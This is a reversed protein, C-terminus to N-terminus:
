GAFAQEFSTIFEPTAEGSYGCYNVMGDAATIVYTSGEQFDIGGILAEMGQTATLEVTDADGGTFWRDVSLTVRDGAVAVATGQFAMPMDALIQVDFALCSALGPEDGLSLELAASNNSTADQNTQRVVFAVALVAVAIAIAALRGRRRPTTIESM